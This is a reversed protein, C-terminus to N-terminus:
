NAHFKFQSSPKANDQCTCSQPILCQQSGFNFKTKTYDLPPDYTILSSNM